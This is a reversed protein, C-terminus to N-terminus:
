ERGDLLPVPDDFARSWGMAPERDVTLHDRMLGEAARPEQLTPINSRLGSISTAGGTSGNMRAVSKARKPDITYADRHIAERTGTRGAWVNKGAEIDFRTGDFVTADNKM